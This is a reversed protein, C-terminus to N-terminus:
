TLHYEIVEPNHQSVLGVNVIVNMLRIVNSCSVRSSGHQMEDLVDEASIGDEMEPVKKSISILSKNPTSGVCQTWRFKFEDEHWRNM